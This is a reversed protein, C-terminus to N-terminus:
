SGLVLSRKKLSSQFDALGAVFVLYFGVGHGVMDDIRLFRSLFIREESRGRSDLALRLNAADGELGLTLIGELAFFFLFFNLFFRGFAGGNM